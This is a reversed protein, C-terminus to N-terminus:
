SPTHTATGASNSWTSNAAAGDSWYPIGTTSNWVMYGAVKNDATNIADSIDELETTTATVAYPESVFAGLIASLIQRATESGINLTGLKTSAWTPNRFDNSM